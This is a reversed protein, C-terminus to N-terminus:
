NYDLCLLFLLVTLFLMEDKGLLIDFHTLNNIKSILMYSSRHCSGFLSRFQHGTKKSAISRRLEENESSDPKQM